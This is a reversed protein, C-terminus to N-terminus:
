YPLVDRNRSKVFFYVIIGTLIVSVSVFLISSAVFPKCNEIKKIISVTKNQKIDDVEVNCEEEEGILKASKRYKSETVITGFLTMKVSKILQICVQM